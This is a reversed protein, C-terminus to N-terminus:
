DDVIVRIVTSNIGADKFTLSNRLDTDTSEWKTDQLSSSSLRPICITFKTNLCRKYSQEVWIFLQDIPEEPRFRRVFRGSPVRLQVSVLGKENETSPEESLQGVLYTHRKKLENERQREEEKAMNLKREEEKKEKEKALRVAQLHMEKSKDLAMSLEYEEDQKRRIEADVKAQSQAKSLKIARELDHDPSVADYGAALFIPQGLDHSAASSSDYQMMARRILATDESNGDSGIWIPRNRDETPSAFGSPNGSATESNELRWRKSKKARNKRSLVSDSPSEEIVITDDPSSDVLIVSDDSKVSSRRRRKKGKSTSSRGVGNMKFSLILV